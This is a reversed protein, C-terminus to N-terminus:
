RLDDREDSREERMNEIEGAASPFEGYKGRLSDQLRHVGALQELRRRRHLEARLAEVM